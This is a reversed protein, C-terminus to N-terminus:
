NIIEIPFSVQHYSDTLNIIYFGTNINKIDLEFTNYGAQKSNIKHTKILQGQLDIISLSLESIKDQKYNITLKEKTPNPFYDLLELENTRGHEINDAEQRTTLNSFVKLKNKLSKGIIEGNKDYITYSYFINKNNGKKVKYILNFTRNELNKEESIGWMANNSGMLSITAPQIYKPISDLPFLSGSIAFIKPCDNTDMGISCYKALHNSNGNNQLQFQAAALKYGPEIEVPINILSVPLPDLLKGKWEIPMLCNSGDTKIINFYINGSDTENTKISFKINDRAPPYLFDNINEPKSKYNWIEDKLADDVILNHISKIRVGNANAYSDTIGIFKIDQTLDCNTIEINGIKTGPDDQLSTFYSGIKIQCNSQHNVFKIQFSCTCKKSKCKSDIEVLYNHSLNFESFLLNEIDWINNTDCNGQRQIINNTSDLDTIKCNIQKSNNKSCIIKGSINFGNEGTQILHKFGASDCVVPKQFKNNYLQIDVLESCDDCDTLINKKIQISNCINDNTDYELVNLKIIYTKDNPSYTHTLVDGNSFSGKERTGDGWSVSVVNINCSNPLDNITINAQCFEHDYNIIIASELKTRLTSTDTCCIESPNLAFHINCLASDNKYYGTLTITYKQTDVGQKLPRPFTLYFADSNEPIIVNGHQVIINNRDLLKWWIRSLSDENVILDGRVIINEPFTDRIDVRFSNFSGCSASIENKNPKGNSSTSIIINSFDIKIPPLFSDNLFIKLNCIASDNKYRGILELNFLGSNQGKKLSLSNTLNFDDSNEPIIVKGQNVLINNSDLLKWWISSLSDENVILDGRVIINEPFTDRSNIKLSNFSGCSASIENNNPKGNSSTSLKINSFDIKTPPLFSDNLFIKLNCFASDNKYRGLLELIFIRGTDGQKLPRPAVAYFADSNETIIVNGQNVLINNSDLLKWWISSISDENVILDGRVIINEPFTDRTDIKLSNYSGCIASIENNGPLGNISTSLKINSFDISIPLLDEISFTLSCNMSDKEHFGTLNLTYINKPILESVKLAEFKFHDENESITLKGDNIITTPDSYLKWQIKSTGAVSVLLDGEFNLIYKSKGKEWSNNPKCFIRAYSGCSIIEHLEGSIGSSDMTALIESFHITKPAELNFVQLCNARNGCSDLAFWSRELKNPCPLTGILKDAYSFQINSNMQCNDTATPYGYKTPSPNQENCNITFNNPCQIKPKEIDRKTIKQVCTSKNGCIDAASFTRSIISGCPLNNVLQDTYSIVIQSQCDDSATANGTLITSPVFQCDITIDAPCIINPKINDKKAIFQTCSKKNNCRDMVLWTRKISTDCPSSSVIQDTYSIVPSPDLNDTVFPNGTVIPLISQKCSITIDQPCNVTPAQNDVNSVNIIKCDKCSNVGDNITVCVTYSGNNQYQHIPNQIVSGCPPNDGFDWCYSLTGTQNTSPFFQIKGCNGPQIEYRVNCIFPCADKQTFAISNTNVISPTPTSRTSTSIVFNRSSSVIPSLNLNVVTDLCNDFNLNEIAIFADLGGIGNITNQRADTYAIQSSNMVGIYGQSYLTSNDNLVKSWNLNLSNGVESLSMIVSRKKGIITGTGLAYYGGGPRTIIKHLADLGSVSYNYLINSLGNVKMIQASPGKSGGLINFYGNTSNPYSLITNFFMNEDFERDDVINGDNDIVVIGAYPSSSSLWQGVLIMNGTNSQISIDKYFEYDIAGQGNIHKTWSIAGNASANLILVNDYLGSGNNSIGIIYYPFNSNQPNPNLYIKNLTERSEYDYSKVTMIGALTCTGIMSKSNNDLNGNIGVLLITDKTTMILDNWASTISVERTWVIVGNNSIRTLTARGNSNGIAYYDGAHTIVKTFYDSNVTGCYIKFDPVSLSPSSNCEESTCDKIYSSQYCADYAWQFTEIKFSCLLILFFPFLFTISRKM